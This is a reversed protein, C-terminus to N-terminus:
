REFLNYNNRRRMIIVHELQVTQIFSTTNSRQLNIRTSQERRHVYTHTTQARTRVPPLLSSSFLTNGRDRVSPSEGILRIRHIKRPGHFDGSSIRPFGKRTRCIAGGGCPLGSPHACRPSERTDTATHGVHPLM